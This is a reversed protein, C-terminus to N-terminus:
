LRYVISRMRFSKSHMVYSINNKAHDKVKVNLGTPMEADM